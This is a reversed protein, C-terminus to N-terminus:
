YGDGSPSFDTRDSDRHERMRLLLWVIDSISNKDIIKAGAQQFPWGTRLAHVSTRTREPAGVDYAYPHTAFGSFELDEPRFGRTPEFGVAGALKVIHGNTTDM